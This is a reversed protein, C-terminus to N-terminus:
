LHTWARNSKLNGVHARTIGYAAAIVSQKRTDLRIKQVQIETLKSSGQREGRAQNRRGKADRDDVNQKQTGVWLHEPNLCCTNDCRHCVVSETSVDSLQIHAMLRHTAWRKGDYKIRGYGKSSKAGQWEWCGNAIVTTSRLLRLLVDAYTKAPTPM